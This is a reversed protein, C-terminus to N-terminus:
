IIRIEGHTYPPKAVSWPVQQGRHLNDPHQPNNGIQAGVQISPNNCCNIPQVIQNARNIVNFYGSNSTELISKNDSWMKDDTNNRNGETAGNVRNHQNEQLCTVVRDVRTSM